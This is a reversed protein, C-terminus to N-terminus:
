YTFNFEKRLHKGEQSQSIKKAIGEAQELVLIIEETEVQKATEKWM